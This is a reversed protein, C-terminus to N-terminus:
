LARSQRLRLTGYVLWAFVPVLVLAAIWLIKRGASLANNRIVTPL